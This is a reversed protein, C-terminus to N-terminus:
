DQRDISKEVRSKEVEEKKKRESELLEEKTGFIYFDDEITLELPQLYRHIVNYPCTWRFLQYMKAPGVVARSNLQFTDDLKLPKNLEGNIPREINGEFVQNGNVDTAWRYLQIECSRLRFGVLHVPIKGGLYTDEAKYEYVQTPPRNDFYCTLIYTICGILVVNAFILAMMLFFNKMSRFISIPTFTTDEDAYVPKNDTM